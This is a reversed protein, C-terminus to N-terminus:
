AKEGIVPVCALSFEPQLDVFQVRWEKIVFRKRIAHPGIVNAEIAALGALYIDDMEFANARSNQEDGFIFAIARDRVVEVLLRRHLLGEGFGNEPAKFGSGLTIITLGNENVSRGEEQTVRVLDGRPESSELLSAVFDVWRAGRDEKRASLIERLVRVHFGGQSEDSLIGAVPDFLDRGIRAGDGHVLVERENLRRRLSKVFPGVIWTGAEEADTVHIKCRRNVLWDNVVHIARNWFRNAGGNDFSGRPPVCGECGGSVLVCELHLQQRFADIG